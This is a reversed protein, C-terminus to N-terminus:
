ISSEEEFGTEHTPGIQKHIHFKIIQGDSKNRHMVAKELPAYYYGVLLGQRPTIQTM